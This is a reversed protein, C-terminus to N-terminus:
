REEEELDLRWEDEASYWVRQPSREESGIENWPSLVFLDQDFLFIEEGGEQSAKLHRM